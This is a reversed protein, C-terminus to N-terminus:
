SMSATPALDRSAEDISRDVSERDYAYTSGSEDFTEGVKTCITIRDRRHGFNALAARDIGRQTRLRAHYRHPRRGHRDTHRAPHLGDGPLSTRVHVCVKDGSKARDQLGRFRHALNSHRDTRTTEVGDPPRGHHDHWARLRISWSRLPHHTRLNRMAHSSHMSRTPPTRLWSWRRRGSRSSASAPASSPATRDLGNEPRSNPEISEIPRGSWRPPPRMSIPCCRPLVHWRNAATNM